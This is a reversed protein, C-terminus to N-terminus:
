NCTFILKTKILIQYAERHVGESKKLNSIFVLCSFLSHLPSATFEIPAQLRPATINLNLTSIYECGIEMNPHEALNKMNQSAVKICSIMLFTTKCLFWLNYKAFLFIISRLGTVYGLPPSALPWSGERLAQPGRLGPYIKEFVPYM